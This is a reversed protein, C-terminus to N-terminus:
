STASLCQPSPHRFVTVALRLDCPQKEKRERSWEEVHFFVTVSYERRQGRAGGLAEARELAASILPFLCRQGESTSAFTGTGMM